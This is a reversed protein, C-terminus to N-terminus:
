SLDWAEVVLWEDDPCAQLKAADLELKGNYGAPLVYDDGIVTSSDNPPVGRALVRALAGARIRYHLPYGNGGLDQVEDTAVMADLWKLGRYGTEWQAVCRDAPYRGKEESPRWIMVQFGLM